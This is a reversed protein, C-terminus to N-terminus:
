APDVAPAEAALAAQLQEHASVLAADIQAQQEATPATGSQSLNWEVMAAQGIEIAVPLGRAVLALIEPTLLM